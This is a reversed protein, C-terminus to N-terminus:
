FIFTYLFKLVLYSVFLNSLEYSGVNFFPEHFDEFGNSPRFYVHEEPM